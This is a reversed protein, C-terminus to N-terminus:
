VLKDDRGDADDSPTGGVIQRDEPAAEAVGVEEVDPGRGPFGADLKDAWDRSASLGTGVSEMLRMMESSILKRLLLDAGNQTPPPVTRGDPLKIETCFHAIQATLTFRSRATIYDLDDESVGKFGPNDKHFRRTAERTITGLEEPTKVQFVLTLGSKIIKEQLRDHQETLDKIKSDLSDRQELLDDMVSDVFSNTTTETRKRIKTEVQSHQDIFAELEDLVVGLEAGSKQDLYATHEFVPFTSQGELYDEFSFNDPGPEPIGPVTTDQTM